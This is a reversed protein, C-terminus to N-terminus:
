RVPTAISRRRPRQHGAQGRRRYEAPTRGYQAVFQHNLHSGDVFGTQEAVAAITEDTTLLLHAAQALRARLCFRGFSIGMTQRFIHHFRSPSLGCARAADAPDVRKLLNSTALTLSPLIRSLDSTSIQPRRPRDEPQWHRPLTILFRVITLRVVDQWGPPQQEIEHALDEGLRLVDARMEPSTTRPRVGPPAAFVSLWSLDGPVTEEVMGPLFIMVPMRTDPTLPRWAHPEWMAALWFDGPGLDLVLDEFQIEERGGLVIGLEMGKHM